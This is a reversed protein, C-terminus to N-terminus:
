EERPLSFVDVPVSAKLISEKIAEAISTPKFGGTISYEGEAYTTSPSKKRKGGLQEIAYSLVEVPHTTRYSVDFRKVIEALKAENKDIDFDPYMKKVEQKILEYNNKMTVNQLPQVYNDLQKKVIKEITQLPNKFFDEEKIEEAKNNQDNGSLANLIKTFKEREEKYKNVEEELKKIKEEYDKLSIKQQKGQKKSAPKLIQEAEEKAEESSSTIDENEFEDFYEEVLEDMNDAM